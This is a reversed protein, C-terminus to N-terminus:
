RRVRPVIGPRNRERHCHRREHFQEVRADRVDSQRVDGTTEPGAVVFASPHEGAVQDGVGDNQRHAGPQAADEPAFAVVHQADGQKSRGRQKATERGTEAHQDEAPHQLSNAAAAQRRHCLRDQDVRKRGCLQPRSECEVTHSDHRRRGDTRRQTPPNGVAERPPPHEEEVNRDAQQRQQERAPQNM